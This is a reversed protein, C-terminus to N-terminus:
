NHGNLTIAVSPGLRAPRKGCMVVSGNALAHMGRADEMGMRDEIM